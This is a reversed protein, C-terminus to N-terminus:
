LVKQLIHLTIYHILIFLKTLDINLDEEFICLFDNSSNSNNSNNLIM